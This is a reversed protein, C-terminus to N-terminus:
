GELFSRVAAGPDSAALIARIVAVGAIGTPALRRAGEATIGGIAVVPIDVAEVVRRVGEVGVADPADLKSPTPWVAGCGVYDAGGAEAERALEPTEASVGVVFGAPVQRRVERVPLDDQGVHVGDAGISIALEVRDNVLFLAGHRRCRDGIWRALPLLEGDDAEKDRLQIATAGAQLAADVVETLPRPDAARPDTVLMLRLRDALKPAMLILTGGWRSEAGRCGM